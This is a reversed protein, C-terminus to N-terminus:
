VRERCSARGIEVDIKEGQLETVIAQVRVGRMGICAGRPDITNDKSWVAVKARSGADRAVSKIEILGDYVEPVETAFLKALFQPHSRSLFIQPGRIESRVDMLYARVRDGVRFTENPILEDRRLLGEAHGLDVIVHGLEVRKVIGHVIEGVKDKFENFQHMREADRVKQVIVQKATQAAIRGFNKPVIEIDVQDGVKLTKNIKKAAKSDIQTVPDEVTKVVEKVSYVNTAGTKEDMVVKVNESSDYNRKYATVLATEISELLFPKKIGKEKELDELARILEKNDIAKMKKCREKKM